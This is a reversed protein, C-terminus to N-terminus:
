NEFLHHIVDIFVTSPICLLVWLVFYRFCIQGYCNLPLDSYDWVRLGMQVNVIAGFVYEVATIIVAGILVRFPLWAQPIRTLVGYLLVTCLGGALFMSIHSRGRWFYELSVYICGGLLFLIVYFM